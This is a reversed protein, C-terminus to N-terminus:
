TNIHAHTDDEDEHDDAVIPTAQTQAEELQQKWAVLEQKTADLQLTAAELATREELLTQQNVELQDNCENM